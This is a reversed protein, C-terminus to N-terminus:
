NNRYICFIFQYLVGQLYFVVLSSPYFVEHFFLMILEGFVFVAISERLVGRATEKHILSSSGDSM